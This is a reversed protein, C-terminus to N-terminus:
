SNRPPLSEHYREAYAVPCALLRLAEAIQDPRAARILEEAERYTSTVPDDEQM